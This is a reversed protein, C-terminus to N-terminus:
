VSCMLIGADRHSGAWLLEEAVVCIKGSLCGNYTGFLADARSESLFCQPGLIKALFHQFVISKGAGEESILVTATNLRQWPAQVLQALCNLFFDSHERVGACLIEHIHDILPACDGKVASEPPINFGRFLNYDRPDFQEPTPTLSPFFGLHHFRECDSHKLWDTLSLSSYRAMCNSIDHDGSIQVPERQPATYIYVSTSEIYAVRENWRMCEDYNVADSTLDLREGGCDPAFCRLHVSIIKGSESNAM